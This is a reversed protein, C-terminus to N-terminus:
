RRTLASKRRVDVKNELTKEEKKWANYSKQFIMIQFILCNGNRFRLFNSFRVSNVLLKTKEAFLHQFKLSNDDFNTLKRFSNPFLWHGNWQICKKMLPLTLIGLTFSPPFIPPGNKVRWSQSVWGGARKKWKGNEMEMAWKRKEKRKEPARSGPCINQPEAIWLCSLPTEGHSLQVSLTFHRFSSGRACFATCRLKSACRLRVHLIEGICEQYRTALFFIFINM